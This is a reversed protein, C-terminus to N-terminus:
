PRRTDQVRDPKTPRMGISSDAVLEARLDVIVHADAHVFFCVRGDDPSVITLNATAKGPVYNVSSTPPRGNVAEGCGGIWAHGPAAPQDITITVVAGPAAVDLDVAHMRGAAPRGACWTGTCRRTDLLREPTSIRWGLGGDPLLRGLEDVVVHTDRHVWVCSRSPGNDLLALNARAVGAVYNINSFEAAAVTDCRGAQGHGAGLADVVTLNVVRPAADATRVTHSSRSPVRGPRCTTADCVGNRRTDTLRQPTSPHYRLRAGSETLYGVVDVVTHAATSRFVCFRDDVDLPVIAMAASTDGPGFNVASTTREPAVPGCTEPVLHGAASPAVATLNVVAAVAEPPADVEVPMRWGAQPVGTLNCREVDDGADTVTDFCRLRPDNGINFAHIARAQDPTGRFEFHPPDRSVISRQTTTSPCGDNWGYGGWYLGWREATEIVWRPMDTQVPTLCATKGNEGAYNRIPNTGANIDIALGWAHNSLYKPDGSPCQWGGNGATCRFTYGGADRVRYGKASVEALFGEFLPQAAVHTELTGPRLGAVTAANGGIYTAKWADLAPSGNYTYGNWVWGDGVGPAPPRGFGTAAPDYYFALLCGAVDGSAAQAVTCRPPTEPLVWPTMDVAAGAPEATPAVVAVAGVVVSALAATALFSRTRTPKSTGSQAKDHFRLM